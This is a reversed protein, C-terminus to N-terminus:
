KDPRGLSRDTVLRTALIAVLATSAASVVAGTWGATTRQGSRVPRYRTRGRDRGATILSSPSGVVAPTGGDPGVNGVDSPPADSTTRVDSPSVPTSRVIMDQAFRESFGALFAMGAYFFTVEKGTGSELPLLNGVVLVYLAVGFVAGILPRFMGGIMTVRLGQETNVELKQGRTIRFMVSAVSGIGGAIIALMLLDRIESNIAPLFHLAVIPIALIAAGVPMGLLYIRIATAIGSRKAYSELEGLQGAAYSAADELIECQKRSPLQAASDLASLLFVAITYLTYNVLRRPGPSLLFDSERESM